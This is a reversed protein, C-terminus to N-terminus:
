GNRAQAILDRAEIGGAMAAWDDGSRQIIDGLQFVVKDNYRAITRRHAKPDVARLMIGFGDSGSRLAELHNLREIYGAVTPGDAYAAHNVLRVYTVGDIVEVEDQWVRLFM